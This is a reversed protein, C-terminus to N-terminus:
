FKMGSISRDKFRVKVKRGLIASATTPSNFGARLLLEPSLHPITTITIAHLLPLSIRTAQSPDLLGHLRNVDVVPIQWHIHRSYYEFVYKLIPVQQVETARDDQLRKYDKLCLGPPLPEAFAPLELEIQQSFACDTTAKVADFASVHKGEAGNGHGLNIM